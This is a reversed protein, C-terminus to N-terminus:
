LKPRTLDFLYCPTNGTYCFDEDDLKAPNDYYEYHYLKKLEDILAERYRRHKEWYLDQDDRHDQDDLLRQM